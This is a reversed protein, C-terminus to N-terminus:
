AAGKPRKLEVRILHVPDDGLNEVAHPAQPGLWEVVPFSPQPASGSDFLVSGQADYDVYTSGSTVYLVSPWCHAHIPQKVGRAVVVELVRVRENEFLVTHHQPAAAVADLSAPWPCTEPEASPAQALVPDLAAVLAVLWLALCRVASFAM